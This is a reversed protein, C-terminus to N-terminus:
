DTLPCEKLLQAKTILGKEYAMIKTFMKNEIAWTVFYRYDIYLKLINYVRWIRGVYFPSIGKKYLYKLYKRGCKECVFMINKLISAPIDTAGKLFAGLYDVAKLTKTDKNFILFGTIEDFNELEGNYVLANVKQEGIEKLVSVRRHGDYIVYNSSIKIPDLHASKLINNKLGQLKKKDCRNLPQLKNFKLKSIEVLKLEM